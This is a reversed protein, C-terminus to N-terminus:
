TKAVRAGIVRGEQGHTPFSLSLRRMADKFDPKVEDDLEPYSKALLLYMFMRQAVDDTFNWESPDGIPDAAEVTDDDSDAM